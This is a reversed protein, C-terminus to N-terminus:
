ARSSTKSASRRRASSIFSDFSIHLTQAIWAGGLISVVDAFVTLLPLM